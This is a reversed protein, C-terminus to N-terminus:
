IRINFEGKEVPRFLMGLLMEFVDHERFSFPWLSIAPLVEAKREPVLALCSNIRSVM